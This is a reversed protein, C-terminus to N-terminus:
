KLNIVVRVEEKLELIRQGGRGAAREEAKEHDSDCAALQLSLIGMKKTWLDVETDLQRAKATLKTVVDEAKKGQGEGYHDSKNPLLFSM